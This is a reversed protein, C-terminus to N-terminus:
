HQLPVELLNPVSALTELVAGLAGTVEQRARLPTQAPSMWDGQPSRTKQLAEALTDLQQNITALLHPSRANILPALEALVSRTGDIDASTQAYAAGAGLDDNGSLHDRLADELIEHARIPLNTPDGAIDTSSLNASIAEINQGLKDLVPLLEAASQGHWLGYEVRHLGTFDPDNVGGPLGNPLGDVATGMDGFSNYSAGVREWTMAATLWDAKAQDTNGAAVDAQLASVQGRLAELESRAYDQYANNPPTLDDVSVPKVAMAATSDTSGSVQAAASTRAPEGALMCKITYTGDSLTATMDATTAPGLTEIEAVIAGSSDVLNIEGAKSSHNTVSITRTGAEVGHWDSACDKETVSVALNKGSKSGPLAAIVIAAIAIPVIVLVGATLWLRKGAREEWRAFAPVLPARLRSRARERGGSAAAQNAPATQRRGAAVFAYTVVVLYCAWATVQLVTMRVNLETVGIILTAWWSGADIHGSLDFAVWNQGPLLGASQLDGLGYSLVGAAIIILLIATRSFFKGLNLKVARRYLLWCLAVAIAIGITAGVIPAITQGSAKAATWLFLTTELGERGVALFATLALAGAGVQLAAAVEGRIRSSLQASTRRMWFIMATVLAVALVSLTGGIAEQLRSSLESTSISLVAAFSFALSLAGLVGLWVPAASVRTDGDASKAVAALLITVILGAELGERLGILLNPIADAWLM